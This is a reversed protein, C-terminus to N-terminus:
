HDSANVHFGKLNFATLFTGLTIKVQKLSYEHAM